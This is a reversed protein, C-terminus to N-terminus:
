VGAQLPLLELDILPTKNNRFKEIQAELHEYKERYDM